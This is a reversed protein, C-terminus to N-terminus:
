QRTSRLLLSIILFPSSLFLYFVKHKKLSRYSINYWKDPILPDFGQEKAIKDFFLRRNQASRWLQAPCFIFSPFVFLLIHIVYFCFYFFSYRQITFIQKQGFSTRSFYFTSEGGDKQIKSEKHGSCFNSPSLALFCLSTFPFSSIFLLSFILILRSTM